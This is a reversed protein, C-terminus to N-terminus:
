RKASTPAPVRASATAADPDPEAMPTLGVVSNAAVTLEEIWAPDYRDIPTSITCVFSTEPHIWMTTRGGGVSPDDLWTLHFGEKNRMKTLMVRYLHSLTRDDLTVREGNLFTLRGM